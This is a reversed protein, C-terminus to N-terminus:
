GRFDEIFKQILLQTSLIGVVAMNDRVGIASGREFKRLLKDVGVPDFIGSTEISRASLLEDAYEPRDNSGSAGLLSIADPARFPQKSRKAVSAPILDGLAKKLVFKEDLVKM